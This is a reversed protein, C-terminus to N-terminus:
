WNSYNNLEALEDLSATHRPNQSLQALSATSSNLFGNGTIYFLSTTALNRFNKRASVNRRQREGRWSLQQRSQLQDFLPKRFSICSLAPSVSCERLKPRTGGDVASILNPGLIERRSEHAALLMAPRNPKGARIACDAGPFRIADHRGALSQLARPNPNVKLNQTLSL